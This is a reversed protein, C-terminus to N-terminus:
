NKTNYVCDLKENECQITGENHCYTTVRYQFVSWHLILSEDIGSLLKARSLFPSVLVLRSTDKKKLYEISKKFHLLYVCKRVQKEFTSLQLGQYHQNPIIRNELIGKENAFIKM